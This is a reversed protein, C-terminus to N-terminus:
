ARAARISAAQDPIAWSPLGSVLTHGMNVSSRGTAKRHSYFSSLGCGGVAVTGKKSVVRQEFQADRKEAL